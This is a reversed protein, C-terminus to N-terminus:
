RNSRARHAEAQTKRAHCPDSHIPRCNDITDPGDESLPIVHDVEDSGPRGCVHCIGDHMHMVARARAQQRSGSITRERRTSGAWPVKPHDPCPQLNPCSGEPGSHACIKRARTM